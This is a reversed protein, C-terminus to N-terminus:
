RAEVQMTCDRYPFRSFTVTYVCPVPMPLELVRGVVRENAALLEGAGFITMTSGAPINAFRAVEGAKIVAKRLSVAMAPRERRERKFVYWEDPAIVTSSNEAIFRHGAETLKAGYGEYDFVKNAQEIRGDEDHSIFLM